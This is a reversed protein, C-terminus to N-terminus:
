PVVLFGNNLAEQVVALILMSILAMTVIIVLLFTFVKVLTILINKM